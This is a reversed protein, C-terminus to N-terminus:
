CDSLRMLSLKAEGAEDSVGLAVNWFAVRIVIMM